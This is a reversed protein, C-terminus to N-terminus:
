NTFIEPSSVAQLIETEAELWDRLACGERCGHQEYLEYARIRIKHELIAELPQRVSFESLNHIAM